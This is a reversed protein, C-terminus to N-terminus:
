ERITARCIFCDTCGTGQDSPMCQLGYRAAVAGASQTQLAKRLFDELPRNETWADIPLTRPGTQPYQVARELDVTDRDRERM